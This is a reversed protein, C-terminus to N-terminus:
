FMNQYGICKLRELILCVSLTCIQFPLPKVPSSLM